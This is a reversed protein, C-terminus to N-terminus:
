TCMPIITIYARVYIYIYIYIYLARRVCIKHIYICTYRSTSHVLSHTRARTQHDHLPAEVRRDGQIYMSCVAPTSTQVERGEREQKKKEIACGRRRLTHLLRHQFLLYDPTYIYIYVHMHVYAHTLYICSPICACRPVPPRSATCLPRTRTRVDYMTCTCSRTCSLHTDVRMSCATWVLFSAANIICCIDSIYEPSAAHPDGWLSFLARISSSPRQLSACLSASIFTDHTPDLQVQRMMMMMVDTHNIVCACAACLPCACLVCVPRVPSVCAGRM